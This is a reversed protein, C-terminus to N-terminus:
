IRELVLVGDDIDIIEYRFIKQHKIWELFLDLKKILSNQSSTRSNVPINRIKNLYINDVVFFGNENLNNIYKNILIEQHSKPGDLFILDFKEIINAAFADKNLLKIQSYKKLFVSALEYSNEDIELSIIKELKTHEAFIATSYGYATGIELLTNIQKQKLFEVLFHATKDRIIPIKNELCFRKWSEIESNQQM